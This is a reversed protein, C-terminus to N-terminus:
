RSSFGFLWSEGMNNGCLTGCHSIYVRIYCKRQVVLIPCHAQKTGQAAVQYSCVRGSNPL